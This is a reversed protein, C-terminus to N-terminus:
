AALWNFPAWPLNRLILFLLASVLLSWWLWRRSRLQPLVPRGAVAELWRGLFYWAPVPLWVILYLNFSAAAALDGLLLARLSRTMGCGICDLGTLLHLWCPLLPRASVPDYALLIGAGFALLLPLGGAVLLRHYKPWARADPQYAAEVM